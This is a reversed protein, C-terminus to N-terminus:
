SRKGISVTYYLIYIHKHTHTHIKKITFLPSFSSLNRESYSKFIVSPIPLSVLDLTSLTALFAAQCTKATLVKTSCVPSSPLIKKRAFM